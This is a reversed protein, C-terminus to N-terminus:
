LVCNDDIRSELDELLYGQSVSDAMRNWFLNAESKKETRSECVLIPNRHHGTTKRETMEGGPLLFELAQLVKSPDETAHCFTRLNVNLFM